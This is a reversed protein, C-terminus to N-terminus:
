LEVVYLEVMNVPIAHFTVILSASLTGTMTMRDVEMGEPLARCRAV